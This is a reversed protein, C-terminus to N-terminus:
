GGGVAPFIDVKDGPKIRYDMANELFPADRGNVFLHVHRYLQGNEDVLEARMVPFRLVVADLLQQATVGEDLDFEITKQGAIPRLTAYFNVKM